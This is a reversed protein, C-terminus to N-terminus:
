GGETAAVKEAREKLDEGWCRFCRELAAGQTLKVVFALPGYMTEWCTYETGGKGDDVVEQVRETRLAFGPFTTGKWAVRWGKKNNNGTGYPELITVEMGQNLYSSTNDPDMHVQFTMSMGKRIYTSGDDHVAREFASQQEENPPESSPPGSSNITVKPIFRNWEPWKAHQLLVSFVVDPPASIHLASIISFSGGSGHTPTPIPQPAICGPTQRPIPPDSTTISQDTTSTM